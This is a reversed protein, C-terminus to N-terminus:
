VCAWPLYICNGKWLLLFKRVVDLLSENMALYEPARGQHGENQHAATRCIDGNKEEPCVADVAVQSEQQANSTALPQYSEPGSSFM